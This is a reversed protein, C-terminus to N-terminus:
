QQNIKVGIESLKEIIFCEMNEKEWYPISILPINRKNCYEIKITDRKQNIRFQKEAWEEGKGAFDVPYYHQEGNYEFLINHEYDYADFKLNKVNKCDNFIYQVKYKIGLKNLITLMYKESNSINCVPCGASKNFLNCPYGYWITGDLRCKCKVKTHYGRYDGIIEIDPNINKMELVFEEQPKRIKDSAKKKGCKPCGSGNTTLVKPMTTWIYGCEKCKCQIPKECGKYESILEVNKQIINKQVDETTKYRGTCYPCGVKAVRFHSWDTSQVGKDEHKNCIFEIMTGKNKDKHIGIYKLNLENCKDIYDQETYKNKRM